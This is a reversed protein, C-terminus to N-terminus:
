LLFCRLIEKEGFLILNAITSLAEACAEKLHIMSITILLCILKTMSRKM